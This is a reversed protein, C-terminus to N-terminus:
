LSCFVSGTTVPIGCQDAPESRCKALLAEQPGGDKGPTGTGAEPVGETSFWLFM